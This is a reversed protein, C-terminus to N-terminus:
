RHHRGGASQEVSGHVLGLQELEVARGAAAHVAADLDAPQRHPAGVLGGARRLLAHQRARERDRGHSLLSNTLSFSPSWTADQSIAIPNPTFSVSPLTMSVQSNSLQQTRSGGMALSGWPFRQQYNVRSDITSVALVPDVANRSIVASSTAYNINATLHSALSFDQQHSWVIQESTSGSFEHVESFAIGGTMFRNLWRYRFRGDVRLYQTSFWETTVQADTYDNIAWYYGLNRIDRHFNRSTRVIDNLGISPPLLGSRRGRRMDQFIFPLWLVPVDAVYLVAPRAVMLTRSVWKVERAAFHYHPDPLDCSTINAGAAYVRNEENDMALDGRVYWTASAEKLDTTANGIRGAHNCADYLMGHGVMVGTADFLKPAGAAYLACNRETYNITDAELTSGERAVLAHGSMRIEKPGPLLQVSDASYRTIRFGQLDLLLQEM